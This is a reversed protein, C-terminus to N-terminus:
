NELGVAKKFDERRPKDELIAPKKPAGSDAARAGKKKAPKGGGSAFKKVKEAEEDTLNALASGKGSVGAQECLDVLTKSDLNLQKALAYIRIPM